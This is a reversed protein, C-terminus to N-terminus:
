LRRQLPMGRVGSLVGELRGDVSARALLDRPVSRLQSVDQAPAANGKVGPPAGELRGDVSAQALVERAVSRLGFVDNAPAAHRKVGALVGKLRGGAKVCVCSAGRGGFPLCRQRGIRACCCSM